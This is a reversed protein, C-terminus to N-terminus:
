VKTNSETLNRYRILYFEFLLLRFRTRLKPIRYYKTSKISIKIIESRIETSSRCSGVILSIRWIILVKLAFLRVTPYSFARYRIMYSCAHNTGFRVSFRLRLFRGNIRTALNKSSREIYNSRIIHDYFIKFKICIKDSECILFRHLIESVAIKRVIKMQFISQRDTERIGIFNVRQNKYTNQM